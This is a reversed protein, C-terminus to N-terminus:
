LGESYRPAERNIIRAKSNWLCWYETQHLTILLGAECITYVCFHQSIFLNTTHCFIYYCQPAYTVVGHSLLHASPTFELFDLRSATLFRAFHLSVRHWLVVLTRSVSRSYRPLISSSLQCTIFLDRTRKPRKFIYPFEYWKGKKLNEDSLFKTKDQSTCAPHAFARNRGHIHSQMGVRVGGCMSMRALMHTPGVPVRWTVWM